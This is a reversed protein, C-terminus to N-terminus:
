MYIVCYVAVMYLKAVSAIHQMGSMKKQKTYRDGSLFDIKELIVAYPMSLLNKLTAKMVYMNYSTM